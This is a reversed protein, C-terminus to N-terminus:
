LLWCCVRPDHAQRVVSHAAFAISGGPQSRSPQELLATVGAIEAVQMARLIAGRLLATGTGQQRHNKHIALRDLVLVPIPDPRNRKMTGPVKTHGIAGAALCDCGVLAQGECVVDTRSSGNARHKAARRNLWDDLSPEGSVFDAFRSANVGGTRGSRHVPGTDPM